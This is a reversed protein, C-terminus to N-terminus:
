LSYFLKKVYKAVTKIRAGFVGGKASSLTRKITQERSVLRLSVTLSMQKVCFELLAVQLLLAIITSKTNHWVTPVKLLCQCCTPDAILCAILAM